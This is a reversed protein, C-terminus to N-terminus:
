RMIFEDFESNSLVNSLDVGFIEACILPNLKRVEISEYHM